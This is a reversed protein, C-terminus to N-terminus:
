FNWDASLSFRDDLPAELLPGRPAHTLVVRYRVALAFSGLRAGLEPTVAVVADGGVGVLEASGGAHFRGALLRGFARAAHVRLIENTRYDLGFRADYSAGLVWSRDDTAEIGVQAIPGKATNAGTYWGYGALIWLEIGALDPSLRQYGLSTSWGHARGTPTTWDVRTLRAFDFQLHHRAGRPFGRLSLAGSLTTRQEVREGADNWQARYDVGLPLALRGDKDIKPGIPAAEAEIDWLRYPSVRLEALDAPELEARQVLRPNLALHLGPAGEDLGAGFTQFLATDLTVDALIKSSGATQGPARLLGIWARSRILDYAGWALGADVGVRAGAAVVRRGDVVPDAAELGVLFATVRREDCAADRTAETIGREMCAARTRGREYFDDLSPRSLDARASSGISLTAALATLAALGRAPTTAAHVLDALSARV